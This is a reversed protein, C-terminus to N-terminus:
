YVANCHVNQVDDLAELESIFDEITKIQEETKLEVINSPLYVMSSSSSSFLKKLETSTKELDVIETFLLYNESDEELEFDILPYEAIVELLKDQSIKEKKDIKILGLHKFGWGVCGTEGLNGQYDSFVLRVESATRNRNNTASEVLVAVSFPGYGEYLIEELKMSGSSKFKDIARQINDNPMGGQKARDVASRLRFNFAPDSGGLKAAVAIEKSLQAYLAGKKADVALKRHKINAWKSHGAM